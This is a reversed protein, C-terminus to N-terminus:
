TTKTDCYLKETESYRSQPQAKSSGSRIYRFADIARKRRSLARKEYREIALLAPLALRFSEADGRPRRKGSVYNAAIDAPLEEGARSRRKADNDAFAEREMTKATACMKQILRVARRIHSLTGAAFLEKFRERSVYAPQYSPVGTTRMREVERIRAARVRTIAIQCEAITTALEQEIPDADDGCIMAALRRIKEHTLADHINVAELGHRLANHSSKSKGGATKPGTSKRANARNASIRRESTM